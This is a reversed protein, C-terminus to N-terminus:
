AFFELKPPHELQPISARITASRVEKRPKMMVDLFLKFGLTSSKHQIKASADRTNSAGRPAPIVSASTTLNGAFV